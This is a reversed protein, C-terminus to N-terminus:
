SEWRLSLSFYGGRKPGPEFYRGGFANVVVSSVYRADTLNTLGASPALRLRGLHVGSSGVRLDLLTSGDASEDNLDNAPVESRLELRLEGFWSGRNARVAGELRHPAIGPVRNGDYSVDDVMFKVFRADIYEYAVRGTIAETLASRASTEIGKILSRGANRFFRRGPASPVEFPLLQNTLSTRFLAFDYLAREGLEGRMGAEITWGRQPELEQNFGGARDPRNVLETTTPTELSRAVSAFLGHDGLDLNIGLSPNLAAMTRSGSDDPDNDGIPALDDVSFTFHDWRLAGTVDLRGGLPLHLQGFLARVQVKEDQLLTLGGQGGGANAYNERDDDQLESEVGVELRAERANAEWSRSVAMRMGRGMRNLFIVSTPILTDLSRTVIYGSANGDWRGFLPGTWSLGFQSQRVLKRTRRIVNFNWAQSSGEAFLEGPLSGPNLADLKMGIVRVALTGGGVTGTAGLNFITRESQSYPDEDSDPDHINNRFGDYNSRSMSARISFRGARGSGAAQLRFMGDSGAMVTADQRYTGDYPAVSQFLLVGGAGNGYISAAPGRLAEVKGLSGVDLHDLTSQGDPLTAPIGDVMIKIGRVGFQSRAGFGRISIREGVSANYRNQVRVGSLGHLAEEIFLSSNGQSLEPGTIVSASFPLRELLVPSRLVSVVISDLTIAELTDTATIDQANTEGQANVEGALISQIVAVALLLLCRVRKNVKPLLCGATFSKRSCRRM